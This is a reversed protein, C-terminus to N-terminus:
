SSAPAVSLTMTAFDVTARNTELNVGFKGAIERVLKAVEDHVTTVADVAANREAQLRRIQVSLDTIRDKQEAVSGVLLRVRAADEPSLPRPVAISGNSASANSASGNSTGNSTGNM